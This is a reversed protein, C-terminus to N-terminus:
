YDYLDQIVNFEEEMDPILSEHGQAQGNRIEDTTYPRNREPEPEPIAGNAIDTFDFAVSSVSYRTADTADDLASTKKADHRLTELEDILVYNEPIDDISLMDNKFLANMTAVGISRDKNAKQLEAVNARTAIIGFDKAAWDYYAGTVARKGCLESRMELYKNLVDTNTTEENKNGRWVRVVRAKKFDPSVATFSIAAPHNEKGGTGLDIGTYWLWDEPIPEYPKVNRERRFSEYALGEPATYKGFIRRDIEAQSGLLARRKQIDEKTYLGPSGDEFKLCSYMSITKILAGDIVNRGEFIEKFYPYCLVPTLVALFMGRTAQLRMLIEPLLSPDVEEDITIHSPSSAALSLLDSKGHSYGLFQIEIGTNFRISLKESNDTLKWGYQPHDKYEGRPLFEAIWKHQIERRALKLSPYFYFFLTPQARRSIKAWTKPETALHINKRIAIASKGIQNAASLFIYRHYSDFIERSWHYFKQGYLHPLGEQLARKKELLIQREVNPDIGQKPKVNTV